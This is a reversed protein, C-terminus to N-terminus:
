ISNYLHFGKIREKQWYRHRHRRLRLHDRGICPHRTPHKGLQEWHSCDFACYYRPQRCDHHIHRRSASRKTIGPIKHSLGPRCNRHDFSHYTLAVHCFFMM